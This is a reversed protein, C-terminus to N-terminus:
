KFNEKNIFYKKTLLVSLAALLLGACVDISWHVGLYLTSITILIAAILSFHMYEKYRRKSDFWLFLLVITFPVSIHGSPFCNDLPDVTEIISKYNINSYLLPKIMNTLYLGPTDVPFFVYFPILIIYNIVIAITYLKIMKKDNKLILMFPTFFLLFTYLYMYVWSFPYIGFIKPLINQLLINLKGNNSLSSILYTYDKTFKTTYPHVANELCILLLISVLIAIYKWNERFGKIITKKNFYKKGLFYYVGGIILVAMITGFVLIFINYSSIIM